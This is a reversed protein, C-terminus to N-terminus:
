RSRSTVIAMPSEPSSMSGARQESSIARRRASANDFAEAPIRQAEYRQDKSRVGPVTGLELPSALPVDKPHELDAAAPVTTKVPWRSTGPEDDAALAAACGASILAVTAPLFSRAGARMM